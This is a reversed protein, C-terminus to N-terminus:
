SITIFWFRVWLKKKRQLSWIDGEDKGQTSNQLQDQECVGAEQGEEREFLGKQLYGRPGQNIVQLYFIWVGKEGEGGGGGGELFLLLFPPFLLSSLFLPSPSSQLIDWLKKKYKTKTSTFSKEDIKQFICCEWELCWSVGGFRRLIFKFPLNLNLLPKGSSPAIHVYVYVKRLICPPM